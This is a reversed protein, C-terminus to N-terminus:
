KLHPKTTLIRMFRSNAAANPKKGRKEYWCSEWREFEARSKDGASRWIDARSLRKGTRTLVEQIYADVLARRDERGGDIEKEGLAAIKEAHNSTVPGPAPSLDRAPAELLRAQWEGIGAQFM